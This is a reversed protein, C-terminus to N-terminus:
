KARAYRELALRARDLVDTDPQVFGGESHCEVLETLAKELEAVEDSERMWRLKQAIIRVQEGRDRTNSIESVIDQADSMSQLYPTTDSM